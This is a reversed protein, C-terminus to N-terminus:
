KTRIRTAKRNATADDADILAQMLGRTLLKAGNPSLHSKDKYISVGNIESICRGSRCLVESPDFVTAGVRKAVRRIADITDSFSTLHEALTRNLTIERGTVLMRGIHTPPDVPFVPSPLILLVRKGAHMLVAVQASLKRELLKIPQVTSADSSKCNDALDCVAGDLQRNFYEKWNSGLVVIDIDRKLARQMSFKNFAACDLSRPFVDIGIVPPCGGHTALLPKRNTMPATDQFKSAIIEITPFLQEMHSDGWFLIYHKASGDPFCFEVTSLSDFKRGWNNKCKELIPWGKVVAQNKALLERVELPFRQPLGNTAFFIAGLVLASGMVASAGLFLSKTSRFAARRRFPLEVFRWSLIALAFSGILITAAEYSELRRELIYRAFVLLPWHWLYLSYSVLGIFVIARASLLRSALTPGSQGSYIILVTGVCPLLSNFGPFPTSRSFGLVAGVIMLLGSIAATERALRGRIIPFAELAILAGLLLEYMRPLALFFAARPKNEVAWVSLAFSLLLIATLLKIWVLRPQHRLAFLLVPFFIYFQEEVALSWTHLLPADAADANFYGRTSRWFWLNSVFLATAIVSQGFAYLDLPLYVYLAAATAVSIVLFLAPIIRRVRREYFRIITFRDDEIDKAIIGTILFGSIVFFVDVGVFGGGFWVFGAHFLLVALVAIARLGDIDPRYSIPHLRSM